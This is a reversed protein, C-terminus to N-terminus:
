GVPTWPAFPNTVGRLAPELEPYHRLLVDKMTTEQVWEFGVPSYVEPRFDHTFFRDSKLRRSAMLIFVRFTTDCFGFSNFPNCAEDPWQNTGQSWMTISCDSDGNVICGPPCCQDGNICQNVMSTPNKCVGNACTTGNTCGDHDDCPAGNNFPQGGQCVGNNCTEGSTCDNKDDCAAGNKFPHSAVGATTGLFSAARSAFYLM